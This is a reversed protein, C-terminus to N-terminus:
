LSCMPTHITSVLDTALIAASRLAPLKVFVDKGEQEIYSYSISENEHLVVTGCTGKGVDLAEAKLQYLFQHSLVPPTTTSPSDNVWKWIVM